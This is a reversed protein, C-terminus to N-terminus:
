TPLNLNKVGELGLKEFDGHIVYADVFVEGKGDATRLLGAGPITGVTCFGLSKWIRVSADNNKYVLNFVSGRYGCAPGYYLFSVAAIGGLGMGRASPPVVFGANCLHSSRGPYNPKIYYSFGYATIWDISDFFGKPIDVQVGTKPISTDAAQHGSLKTLTNTQDQSLLVGVILDYSIFYGKFEADSMPGRQPYTVGRELEDNFVHRLRDELAAPIVPSSDSSTCDIPWAVISVREKTVARSPLAYLRAELARTKDPAPVHGYAM